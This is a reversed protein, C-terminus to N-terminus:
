FRRVYSVSWVAADSGFRAYEARVADTDTLEGEVGLGYVAANGDGQAAFGGASAELEYEVYGLRAFASFRESVPAKAVVYAGYESKMEVDVGAISDDAIGFGVEAELAVYDNLALGARAQLVGLNVDVDDVAVNAYGVSGYFSTEASAIAPAALLACAAAAAITFTKM